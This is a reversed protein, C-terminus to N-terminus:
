TRRVRSELKEALRYVHTGVQQPWPEDPEVQLRRGHAIADKLHSLLPRPDYDAKDYPRGLLRNLETQCAKVTPPTPPSAQHLLLWLEFSPNSAGLSYGETRCIQAVQQLDAAEWEPVDIIVWLEDQPELKDGKAKAYDQLRKLVRKPASQGKRTPLVEVTINQRYPNAKFCDFYIAETCEGETAIVYRKRRFRSPRSRSFSRKHKAM